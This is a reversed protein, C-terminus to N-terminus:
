KKEIIDVLEYKVKGAPVTVEIIEGKKKELLEKGVPCETSIRGELPDSEASGVITFEYEQDTSLNKIRVTSGVSVIGEKRELEDIIVANDIMEQLTYIESEIFAQEKKAEEYESNEGIEGFEKAQRIREGIERRQINKLNYLKKKLEELGRRTLHITKEPM